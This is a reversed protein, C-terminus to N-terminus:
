VYFVWMDNCMIESETIAAAFQLVNIKFSRLTRDSHLSTLIISICSRVCM